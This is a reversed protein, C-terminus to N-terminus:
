TVIRCRTVGTQKIGRFIQHNKITGKLSIEEDGLEKSTKWIVENDDVVFKYIYTTGFETPYSCLCNPVGKFEIKDGINGIYNSKSSKAEEGEHDKRLKFGVLSVIFSLNNSDVFELLSLTKLDEEYANTANYNSIWDLLVRVEELTNQSIEYRPVEINNHSDKVGNMMKWIRSATTTNGTEESSKKSIYGKHKVDELTQALVERVEYNIPNSGHKDTDCYDQYESMSNWFAIWAVYDTIDIGLYEKVCGKGVQIYENTLTNKLLVTYKRFRKIKCHDCENRTFYIEPVEVDSSITKVLNKKAEEMYELSAIFEYGNIQYKGEIDIDVVYRAYKLNSKDNCIYPTSITYSIKDGGYKKIFKNVKDEVKYTLNNLVTFKM